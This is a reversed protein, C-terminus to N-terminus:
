GSILNDSIIFTDLRRMSQGDGSCWSFKKGLCPIDVLGMNYIFERFCSMEFRMHSEHREKWEDRNLICNFDEGLCWDGHNFKSKLNILDGWLKRKDYINCSSYINIIFYIHGNWESFIVM